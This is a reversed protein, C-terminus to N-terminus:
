KLLDKKGSSELYEPRGLYTFSIISEGDSLEAVGGLIMVASLCQENDEEGTSSLIEYRWRFIGM